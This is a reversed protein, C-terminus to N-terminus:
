MKADADEREWRELCEHCVWLGGEEPELKYHETVAHCFDCQAPVGRLAYLLKRTDETM